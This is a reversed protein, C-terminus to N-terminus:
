LTNDHSILRVRNVEVSVDRTFSNLLSIRANGSTKDRLTM